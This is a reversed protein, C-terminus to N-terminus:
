RLFPTFTGLYHYDGTSLAGLRFAKWQGSVHLQLPSGKLPKVVGSLWALLFFLQWGFFLCERSIHSTEYLLSLNVAGTTDGQM